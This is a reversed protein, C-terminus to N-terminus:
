NHSLPHGDGFRAEPSATIPLRGVLNRKGFIAEAAIQQTEPSQEFAQIVTSLGDYNHLAYPNGFHVVVIKKSESLSRVKELDSDSLGFNQKPSRTLQHFSVLILESNELSQRAEEWDQDAAARLLNVHTLNAFELCSSQFETVEESGIALTAVTGPKPEIIPLLSQADRLLVLSSEFLRRRLQSAEATNLEQELDQLKIEPQRNLGLRYKARLIRKVSEELREQTINGQQVASRLSEAARGVDEPLLLIDNGSIFAQVEAMGPEFFKTVGKMELADTFVLGDYKLQRRIIGNVVKESLSTPLNPTDDLAPVNLHAVMVSGLGRQFLARFPAMELEELRARNHLLVPLDFHSDVDTDGHGPFHKGCALVGAAQLGAAYASAKSIVNEVNEGFSRDNIVPNLPNNNVDLVPAFNVHVGLRRCQRGIERGMQYILDDDPMAALTLARPYSLTSSPLRMGLGWEADMAIMLSVPKAILQYERTLEAQRLATGQFFCLGGVHFKEIWGRVLKEYEPGRDSHARVMLLQGVREELSMQDYYRDVWASERQSDDPSLFGKLSENSAEDFAPAQALSCDTCVLWTSAALLVSAFVNPLFPM